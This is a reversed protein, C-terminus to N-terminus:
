YLIRSLADFDEQALVGDHAAVALPDENDLKCCRRYMELVEKSLNGRQYFYMAAGYRTYGSRPLGVPTALLRLQEKGAADLKNGDIM